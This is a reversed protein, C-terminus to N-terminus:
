APRRRQSPVNGCTIIDLGLAYSVASVILHRKTDNLFEIITDKLTMLSEIIYLCLLTKGAM